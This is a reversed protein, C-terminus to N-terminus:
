VLVSLCLFVFEHLQHIITCCSQLLSIFLMLLLYFCRCCTLTEFWWLFLFLCWIMVFIRYRICLHQARWEETRIQGWVLLIVDRESRLHHMLFWWVPWLRWWLEKNRHLTKEEPDLWWPQSGGWLDSDCVRRLLVSSPKSQCESVSSSVCVCVMESLILTAHLHVMLQKWQHRNPIM